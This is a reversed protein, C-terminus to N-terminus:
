GLQCQWHCSRYYQCLPMLVSTPRKIRTRRRGAYGPRGPTQTANHPMRASCVDSIYCRHGHSLDARMHTGMARTESLWRVGGWRVKCQYQRVTILVAMSRANSGPAHNLTSWGARAHAQTHSGTCSRPVPSTGQAHAVHSEM